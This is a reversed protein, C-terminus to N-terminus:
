FPIDAILPITIAQKIRDIAAAASQDPVAVRIIECGAATLQQIQRITASVDDTKTNTMSQVSIPAGGGVAVNGVMIRRTKKRAISIPMKRQFEQM